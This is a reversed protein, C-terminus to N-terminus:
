SDKWDMVSSYIALNYNYEINMWFQVNKGAKNFDLRLDM